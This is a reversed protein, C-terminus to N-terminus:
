ESDDGLLTAEIIELRKRLMDAYEATAPSNVPILDETPQGLQVAQVWSRMEGVYAELAEEPTSAGDTVLYASPLDGIVTWLWEDVGAELPLIQHLTVFVIEPVAIGVYSAAIGGCWRFSRLFDRSRSVAAQVAATEAADQGTFDEVPVVRRLDVNM